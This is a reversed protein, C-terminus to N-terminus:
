LANIAKMSEKLQVDTIVKSIKTKNQIFYEETLIKFKYGNKNAWKKAAKFKAKNLSDNLQYQPKIEYIIKKNHDIFDILYKRQKGKYKYPIKLSEYELGPQLLYVVAEWASRFTYLETKFQKGYTFNSERRDIKYKKLLSLITTPHKNYENAIELLTMKKNIYCDLMKEKTLINELKNKNRLTGLNNSFPIDYKFFIREIHRIPIIYKESIDRKSLGNKYDNILQQENSESLCSRPNNYRMKINYKYLVNQIYTFPLKLKSSIKRISLKDDTYMRIINNTFERRELM